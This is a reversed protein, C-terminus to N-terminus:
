LCLPQSLDKSEIMEGNQNVFCIKQTPKCNLAARLQTLVDKCPVDKELSAIEDGALNVFRHCGEVLEVAMMIISSPFNQELWSFAQDANPRSTGDFICNGPGSEVNSGKIVTGYCSRGEFMLVDPNQARWQVSSFVM